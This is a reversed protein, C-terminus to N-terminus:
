LYKKFPQKQRPVWREIGSEEIPRTEVVPPPLNLEKVM